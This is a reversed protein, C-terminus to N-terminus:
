ATRRIAGATADSAVRRVVLETGHTHRLQHLSITEGAAKCYKKWLEEASSYRLPGGIHNKEARFLPGRTYSADKLYRRLLALFAPDDLLLTRQRDGKGTVTLHEDDPTLDLDEVYM